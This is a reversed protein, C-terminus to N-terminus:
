YSPKNSPPGAASRSRLQLLTGNRLSSPVQPNKSNERFSRKKLRLRHRELFLDRDALLNNAVGEMMRDWLKKQAGLCMTMPSFRERFRPSSKKCSVSVLRTTFGGPCGGQRKSARAVELARLNLLAASSNPHFFEPSLSLLPSLCLSPLPLWAEFGLEMKGCSHEPATGGKQWLAPASSSQSLCYALFRTEGREERKDTGTVSSLSGM